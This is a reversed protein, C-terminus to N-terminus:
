EINAIGYYRLFVLVECAITRTGSFPNRMTVNVTITKGSRSTTIYGNCSSFCPVATYDIINNPYELTIVTSKTASGQAAVNEALVEARCVLCFVGNLFMQRNNVNLGTFYGNDFPWGVDGITSLGDNGSSFPLIGKKPSRIFNTSTGDPLGIGYLGGVSNVSPVELSSRAAGKESAGTGGSEIALPVGLSLAGTMSDGDKSVRGDIEGRLQEVITGDLAAQALDVAEQTQAQLQDYFNQTNLVVFPAVVGCRENELRTDTMKEARTQAMHATVYVDCLGLEWVTESRTLTPRVPADAPAGALVYLDISRSDLSSDWRLVVTDIRDATGSATLSLEREEHEYGVTGNICCRGPAVKVTMGDGPSVNFANEDDTFVGNSFFTEYVERLDSAQYVRDYVPYGDEGISTAVSDWPFSRM